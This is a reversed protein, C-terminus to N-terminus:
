GFNRDGVVYNMIGFFTHRPLSDVDPDVAVSFPTVSAWPAEHQLSVSM